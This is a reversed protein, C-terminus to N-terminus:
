SHRGRFLLSCNNGGFAFSNSLMFNESRRQYHGSTALLNIPALTSDLPLDRRNPPLGNETNLSSLLLWCFAAELAGAAGLTHGSLSKTSSVPVQDGLVQHVALSEVADNQPTATGHLNLYDIQEPSVGGETLAQKMAQIAGRGEPHPASVHYADSSEGAGVLAVPAEDRSVIFLVAAEGINIGDRGEGFPQCYGRALSDLSAFGRITLKCLSDAGGAIVMDCIGANILRRASALAKASSTCATSVTYCPGQVDLYEAVFQSPNGLEQIEYHYEPPLTGDRNWQTLAPEADQIGSTSSGLVVGIRDSGCRQKWHTIHPLLPELAKQLLRNNRSNWRSFRVPVPTLPLTVKGVVVPRNDFWGAEEVMGERCGALLRFLVDSHDHGLPSIMSMENLYVPMQKM